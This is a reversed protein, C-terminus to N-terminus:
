TLRSVKERVRKLFREVDIVVRQHDAEGVLEVDDWLQAKFAITKEDAAVVEARIRVKGGVPTPALHRVRIDVGVTDNGKPLLPAVMDKCTREVFLAMAPTAYVRLSGSGVHTATVESTVEQTDEVSMGPKISDAVNM